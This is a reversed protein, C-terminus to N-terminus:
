WRVVKDNFGFLILQGSVARESKNGCNESV